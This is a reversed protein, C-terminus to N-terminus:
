CVPIVEGCKHPGVVRRVFEEGGLRVQRATFIFLCGLRQREDRVSMTCVEREGRRGVLTKRGCMQEVRPALEAHMDAFAGESAKAAQTRACLGEPRGIIRSGFEGAAM